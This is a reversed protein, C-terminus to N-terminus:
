LKRALKRLGNLIPEFVDEDKDDPYVAFAPYVFRPAREVLTLRGENVLPATIRSPFYGTAKNDLLYNVGLTGLDLYLGPHTFEAFAVAHDAMFEPGWNVVIYDEGPFPEQSGSSTVMVLEEDFLHEVLLGPRNAPRYMVALDLTGETLRQMLDASFGLSASVAVNPVQERIWSIWSLLFGDWLSFQSGVALHDEHQEALGVELRAHEWVRCLALAHKQFQAGSPTLAAGSKSREFLTKGLLDELTRIRSSVTSQTVNIRSAAEIFSGTEIIALFTRALNIDM